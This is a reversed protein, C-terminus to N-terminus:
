RRFRHRALLRVSEVPDGCLAEILKEPPAPRDRPWEKVCTYRVVPDPDRLGVTADYSGIRVLGGRLMGSHVRGRLRADGALALRMPEDFSPHWKQLLVRGGAEPGPSALWKIFQQRQWQEAKRKQEADRAEREAEKMDRAPARIDFISRGVFSGVFAVPTVATRIPLLAMETYYADEFEFDDVDWITAADQYADDIVQVPHAIVTDVVIAALGVPVTLPLSVLFPGQGAPVLTAEFANWVPRNDPNSWACSTLMTV